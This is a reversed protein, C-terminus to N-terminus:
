LITEILWHRPCGLELSLNHSSNGSDKRGLPAVGEEGGGGVGVVGVADGDFGVADGVMDMKLSKGSLLFEAKSTGKPALIDSIADMTVKHPHKTM